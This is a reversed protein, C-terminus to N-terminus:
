SRPRQGLVRFALWRYTSNSAASTTRQALVLLVRLHCLLSMRLLLYDPRQPLGLRAGPHSVDAALM